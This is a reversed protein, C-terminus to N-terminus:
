ILNGFAAVQFYRLNFYNQAALTGVIFINGENFVDGLAQRIHEALAAASM